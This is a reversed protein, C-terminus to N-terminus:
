ILFNSLRDFLGTLYEILYDIFMKIYARKMALYGAWGSLVPEDWEAEVTIKSFTEGVYISTVKWQKFAYGEENRFDIAYGTDRTINEYAYDTYEGIGKVAYGSKQMDAFKTKGAASQAGNGPFYEVILVDGKVAAPATPEEM